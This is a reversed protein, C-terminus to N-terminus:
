LYRMLWEFIKVDCHVSIDIDDVSTAETLYDEFYKMHSVLLNKDCTFDKNIKRNEDYVHIVITDKSLATTSSGM